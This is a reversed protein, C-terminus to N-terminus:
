SPVDDDLDGLDYKTDEDIFASRLQEKTLNRAGGLDARRLIAGGLDARRLDAGSLDAESLNAESLIAERLDAERLDARSLDAGRLNAQTGRRGGTRLWDEHEFLIEELSKAADDTTVGLRTLAIYPTIDMGRTVSTSELVDGLRHDTRIYREYLTEERDAEQAEESVWVESFREPTLVLIEYLRPQRYQILVVLALLEPNYNSIEHRCLLHSLTFTNAFRKAQRPNDGVGMALVATTRQRIEQGLDEDVALSELLTQAYEAQADEAIPPLRFPLQIIKDLYSAQSQEAWQYQHKIAAEIPDRDLGLVYVCGEVNLYLKLSELLELARDPACRDLDDIFMVLRRPKGANSTLGLRQRLGNTGKTQVDHIFAEFLERLRVQQERRTFNEEEVVDVYKILQESNISGTVTTALDLLGMGLVTLINKVTESTKLGLDSVTKQVLALVPNENFQHMWPDFWVTLIDNESEDLARQIQQMMSTKGTGWSGFIGIVLPTNCTQVAETLAEVYHARGLSDTDVPEDNWILAV